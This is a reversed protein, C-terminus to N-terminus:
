LVFYDDQPLPLPVDKEGLLQKINIEITRAISTVATDSPRNRFPDQLHYASNELLFFVLSFLLLLPIEIALSQAGLSVSLLIVFLFITWRLIM